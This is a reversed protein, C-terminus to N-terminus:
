KPYFLKTFREALEAQHKDTEHLLANKRSYARAFLDFMLRYVMKGIEPGEKKELEELKSLEKNWWQFNAKEPNEFDSLMRAGLKESIKYEMKLARSLSANQEKYAKSALLKQQENAMGGVNVLGEFSTIVRKMQEAVRLFENQHRYTKVRRSATAFLSDIETKHAPPNKKLNQLHLWDFARSIQEEPPWSHDGDYTILTHNFKMLDLFERNKWMEKFNMDRDGVLGLYAYEQTSPMHQRLHSFGAGCAIVGSFQNTLSAIASALRSGGSFGAVYMREPDINFQAFIHNFLNNAIAFNRDYSGNKSNNSCVLIHGYKESADKFASIGVVARAAPEFIFVIPSLRNHDFSQPLYLAFSEDSTGSVQISDHVIGRTYETQGLAM